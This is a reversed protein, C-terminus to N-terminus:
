TSARARVAKLAMAWRRQTQQTPMQMGMRGWKGAGKLLLRPGESGGSDVVVVAVKVVVVAVAIAVEALAEEVM